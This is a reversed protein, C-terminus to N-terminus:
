TPSTAVDNGHQDGAESEEDEEAEVFTECCGAWEDGVGEQGISGYDAGTEEAACVLDGVVAPVGVEGGEELNDIIECDGM